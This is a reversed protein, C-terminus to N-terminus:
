ANRRRMLEDMDKLYNTVGAPFHQMGFEIDSDTLNAFDYLREEDPIKEKRYPNTNKFQKQAVGFALSVRKKILDTVIDMRNKRM